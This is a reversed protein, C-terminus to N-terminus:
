RASRRRPRVSATLEDLVRVARETTMPVDLAAEWAHLADNVAVALRRGRASLAVVVRRGDDAHRSRRVLGAAELRDLALTVGGKTRDLAEAIASPSSREDPSRRVVGLVLYDAFSLGSRSAIDELQDTIVLNLRVIAGLLGGDPLDLRSEDSAADTPAAV